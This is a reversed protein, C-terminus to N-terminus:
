TERKGFKRIRMSLVVLLIGFLVAYFAILWLLAIAGAGPVVILLIGFVVSALGSLGMLWEGRVEKRLRFAMVLQSLGTVMAWVAIYVLLVLATIGPSAFTLGGVSISALGWLLLWAWHKNHKRGAVATIVGLVGDVLCYAGFMIILVEVTMAPYIWALVGFAIAACGRLFLVWWHQALLGALRSMDLTQTTM